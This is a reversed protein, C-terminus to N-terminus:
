EDKPPRGPVYGQRSLKWEILSIIEDQDSEDLRDFLAIIQSVRGDRSGGPIPTTREMPVDFGMLWAESVGLAWSMVSIKEPKPDVTKGSCYQTLDSKSLKIGYQACFPAALKLIDVQRLNREDMIQRLRQATSYTRM